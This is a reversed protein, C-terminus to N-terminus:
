DLSVFRLQTCTSTPSYHVVQTLWCNSILIIPAHCKLEDHINKQGNVKNASWLYCFRVWQLRVTSLILLKYLINAEFKITM